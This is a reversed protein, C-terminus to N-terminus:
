CDTSACWAHLNTDSKPFTQYYNISLVPPPQFRLFAVMMVCFDNQKKKQLKTEFSDFSIFQTDEFSFDKM